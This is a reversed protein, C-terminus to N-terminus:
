GFAKVQAVEASPICDYITVINPHRLSAALDVEREFRYQARKSARPGQLLMKVVVTRKTAKQFAKYVVAQGGRPLEELLDYGEILSKLSTDVTDTGDPFSSVDPMPRISYQKEPLGIAKDDAKSLDRGQGALDSQMSRTTNLRTSEVTKRCNECGALHTEVEQREDATCDGAVYRAVLEANLCVNM